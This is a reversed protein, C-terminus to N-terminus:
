ICYWYCCTFAMGKTAKVPDLKVKKEIETFTEMAESRLKQRRVHEEEKQKTPQGDFVFIIEGTYAAPFSAYVSTWFRKWTAARLEDSQPRAKDYVTRIRQWFCANFDVIIRTYTAWPLDQLTQKTCGLKLLKTAEKVGM